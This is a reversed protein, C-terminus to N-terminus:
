ASIYDFLEQPTNFKNLDEGSIVVGYDDELCAIISFRTLSDWTDMSIFKTNLNLNVADSGEFQNKLNELFEEKKNM